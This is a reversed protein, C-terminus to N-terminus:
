HTGCAQKCVLLGVLISGIQATTDVSGERDRYNLAVLCVTYPLEAHCSLGTISRSSSTVTHPTGRRSSPYHHFTM